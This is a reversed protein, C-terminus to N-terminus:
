TGLNFPSLFHATLREIRQSESLTNVLYQMHAIGMDCGTVRKEFVQKLDQCTYKWEGILSM